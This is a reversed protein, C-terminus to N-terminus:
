SNFPDRSLRKAVRIKRLYHSVTGIAYLLGVIVALTILERTAQTM